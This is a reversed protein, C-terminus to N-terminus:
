DGRQWPWGGPKSQAAALTRAARCLPDSPPNGAALALALCAALMISHYGGEATALCASGRPASRSGRPAPGVAAGKVGWGAGAVSPGGMGLALFAGDPGDASRSRRM